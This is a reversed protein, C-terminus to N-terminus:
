SEFSGEEKLEKIFELIEGLAWYIEKILLSYRFYKKPNEAIYTYLVRDIKSLVKKAKQLKEKIESIHSDKELSDSISICISEVDRLLHAVDPPLNRIYPIISYIKELKEIFERKVNKINNLEELKKKLIQQYTDSEFNVSPLLSLHNFVEVLERM